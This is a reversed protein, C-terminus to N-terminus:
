PAAVWQQGAEDWQWEGSEPYPVPPTWKGDAWTWSPYPQTPRPAIFTESGTVRGSARTEVWTAISVEDDQLWRARVTAIKDQDTQRYKVGPAPWAATLTQAGNVTVTLGFSVSRMDIRQDYRDIRAEIDSYTPRANDTNITIQATAADFTSTITM